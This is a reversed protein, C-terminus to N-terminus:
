LILIHTKARMSLKHIELLEEKSFLIGEIIILSITKNKIFNTVQEFIDTLTTESYDNILIQSNLILRDIYKVFMDEYQFRDGNLKEIYSAKMKESISFALNKADISNTFILVPISYTSYIESSIETIQKELSQISNHPLDKLNTLGGPPFTTIGYHYYAKASIISKCKNKM